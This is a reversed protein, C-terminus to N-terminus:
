CGKKDDKVINERIFWVKNPEEAEFPILQESPFGCTKCTKQAEVIPIAFVFKRSLKEHALIREIQGDRSTFAM